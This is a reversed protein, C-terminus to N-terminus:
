TNGAGIYWQERCTEVNFMTITSSVEKAIILLLCTEERLSLKSDILSPCKAKARLKM